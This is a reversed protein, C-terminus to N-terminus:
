KLNETYFNYFIQAHEKALDMMSPNRLIYAPHMLPMVKYTKGELLYKKVKGCYEKVWNQIVTDTLAQYTPKGFTIIFRPKLLNIMNNLHTKCVDYEEPRPDRDKFQGNVMTRHLVINTWFIDKHPDIGISEFM